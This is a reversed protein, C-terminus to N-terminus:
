SKLNEAQEPCFISFLLSNEARGLGIEVSGCTLPFSSLQKQSRLSLLSYCGEMNDERHSLVFVTEKARQRAEGEEGKTTSIM